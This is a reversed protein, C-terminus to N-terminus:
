KTDAIPLCLIFQSGDKPNSEAWLMGGHAEVISRSIALGMGLGGPKTTYFADFIRGLANAAIGKGNDHVVVRVFDDEELTGDISLARRAADVDALADIANAVLNVIVQEFQIPDGEVILPSRALTIEVKVNREKALDGTLELARRVTHGLDVAERKPEHRDIFDRLRQVIEAAVRAQNAIKGLVATVEDSPAGQKVRRTLGGTYNTIAGLPQNIEHAINTSLEGMTAIRDAHAREAYHSLTEAEHQKRETIDTLLAYYGQAQDDADFRPIYNIQVQRAGLRRHVLETELTVRHGALASESYPKTKRYTAEGVVSAVSQGAMAQINKGFWDQYAANAFVYRQKADVYAILVPLADALSALEARMDHQKAIDTLSDSHNSNSM